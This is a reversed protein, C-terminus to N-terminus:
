CDTNKNLFEMIFFNKAENKALDIENIEAFTPASDHIIYGYYDCADFTYDYPNVFVKTQNAIRIELAFLFINRKHYLIMVVDKFKLGEYLNKKLPVRYMEYKTGSHYNHQWPDKKSLIEEMEEYKKL